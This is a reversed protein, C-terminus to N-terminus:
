NVDERDVLGQEGVADYIQESAIPSLLDVLGSPVAGEGDLEAWLPDTWGRKASLSLPYSATPSQTPDEFTVRADVREVGIRRVDVASLEWDSAGLSQDTWSSAGDDWREASLGAGDPAFRLRYLGNDLIREGAYDHAPSFVKQWQLTGDADTKSGVGREDWVRPDVEGEERYPLDYVLTPGQFPAAWADYVKIGDREASRTTVLSATATEGTEEDLWQVDTAPAPVALEGTTENGFPHDAQYIDGTRVARYNSSRGGGRTLSITYEQLWDAVPAEAANTQVSEIAYYGQADPDRTGYVPLPSGLAPLQKLEAALKWALKGVYYGKVTQTGPETSITSVTGSASDLVGQASLNNKTQERPRRQRARPVPLVYVNAVTM